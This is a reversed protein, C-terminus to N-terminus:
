KTLNYPFNELRRKFWRPISGLFQINSRLYNKIIKIKKNKMAILRFIIKLSKKYLKSNKTSAIKQILRPIRKSCEIQSYASFLSNTGIFSKIEHADSGGLILYGRRYNHFIRPFPDYGTKEEVFFLISLKRRGIKQKLDKIEKAGYYDVGFHRPHPIIIIIDKNESIYDLFEEEELNGSIEQNKLIKYPTQKKIYDRLNDHNGLTLIERRTCLKTWAQGLTKHLKWQIGPVVLVKKTSLNIAEKTKIPLVNHDTIGLISFEDDKLNKNLYEVYERISVECDHSRNSHVHLQLILKPSM